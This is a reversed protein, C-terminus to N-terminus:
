CFGEGIMAVLRLAEGIDRIEGALLDREDEDAHALRSELETKISALTDVAAGFKQVITPAKVSTKAPTRDSALEAARGRASMDLQDAWAIVTKEDSAVLGQRLWGYVASKKRGTIECIQKVSLM